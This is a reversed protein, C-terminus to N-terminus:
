AAMLLPALLSTIPMNELVTSFSVSPFSVLPYPCESVIVCHVFASILAASGDFGTM